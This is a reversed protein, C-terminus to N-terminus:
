RGQPTDRGNLSMGSTFETVNVVGDRDFDWKDWNLKMDIDAEAKSIVGDKDRDLKRLKENIVRASAPAPIDAPMRQTPTMELQARAAGAAAAALVILSALAQTTITRM